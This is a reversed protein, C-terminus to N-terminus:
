LKIVDVKVAIKRVNYEFIFWENATFEKTGGDGYTVIVKSITKEYNHLESIPRSM